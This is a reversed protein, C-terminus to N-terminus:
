RDEGILLVLGKREFVKVEIGASLSIQEGDCHQAAWMEGRVRVKGEASESFGSVVTATEKLDDTRKIREGPGLTIKTPAIVEFVVAMVLDGIVSGAVVIWVLTSVDTVLDFAFLTGFILVSFLVAGNTLWLWWESSFRQPVKFRMVGLLKIQRARHLQSHSIQNEDAFDLESCGYM